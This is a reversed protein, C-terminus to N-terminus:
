CNKKLKFFICFCVIKYIKKLDISFFDCRAWMKWRRKREKKKEGEKEEKREKVDIVGQDRPAHKIEKVPVVISKADFLPLNQM